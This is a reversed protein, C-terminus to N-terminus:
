SKNRHPFPIAPVPFGLFNSLTEWSDGKEWCVILLKGSRHAFYKEVLENHRNYFAIHDEKNEEPLSHGYIIKRTETPGTVRAHRCLSQYWTEADIRKTLIFKAEPFHKDLEQYLLPWPWDEFSDYLKVTDIITQINGSVRHALLSEDYSKNKLGYQEMAAGLTKTGTKNLGIGFVKQKNM